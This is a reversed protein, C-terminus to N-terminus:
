HEKKEALAALREAERRQAQARDAEQCFHLSHHDLLGSTFYGVPEFRVVPHHRRGDATPVLDVIMRGHPNPALADAAKRTGITIPTLSASPASPM